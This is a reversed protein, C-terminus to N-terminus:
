FRPAVRNSDHDRWITSHKLPETLLLRTEQESFLPVEVTRASVLYSTWPANVLETIEHSGAFLWTISRHFQMSERLTALLAEPFVRQGILRDINEYEDVSIVLRQNDKESIRNCDSLFAFFDKLDKPMERPLTEGLANSIERALRSILLDVSTFAEPDQMSVNASHVTSPMFGSLNRLITSKGVRRRGYLVVGPCGTSLLVQRELNGIVSDRTVFAEGDRDVPDGARFVQLVPQKDTIIQSDRLQKESIELWRGAAVRFETRLQSM